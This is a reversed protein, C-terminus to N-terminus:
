RYVTDDIDAPPYDDTGVMQWLPDAEVPPLTTIRERVYLRILAAKSTGTSRAERELAEDLEEDIMIQLRKM